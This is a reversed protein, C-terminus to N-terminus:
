NAMKNGIYKMEGTYVDMMVRSSRRGAEEFDVVKKESKEGGEEVGQEGNQEGAVPNMLAMLPVGALRLISKLIYTTEEPSTIWVCPCIRSLFHSRLTLQGCCFTHYSSTAKFIWLISRDPEDHFDISFYTELLGLLDVKWTHVKM